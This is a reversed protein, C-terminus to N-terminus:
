DLGRAIKTLQRIVEVPHTLYKSIDFTLDDIEEKRYAISILKETTDKVKAWYIGKDKTSTHDLYLDLLTAVTNSDGWFELRSLTYRLFLNAAVERTPFNELYCVADVRKKSGSISIGNIEIRYIFQNGEM